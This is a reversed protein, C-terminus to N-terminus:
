LNQLTKLIKEEKTSLPMAMNTNWYESTYNMGNEYISKKQYLDEEEPININFDYYKNVLLDNVVKFRDNIQKGFKVYFDFIEKKYNPIYKDAEKLFSMKLQLDYIKFKFLLMSRLEAYQNHSAATKLDVDLIVRDKADYVIEGEILQQQVTELPKIIIKELTRGDSSVQSRIEFDYKESDKAKTLYNEIIDLNFFDNAKNKFDSLSNVASMDMKGNSEIKDASTLEFARSQNVIVYPKVKDKRKPKIYYDVLGDCFKSYQNNIILFERFYTELKVNQALRQKSNDILESMIEHLPKSTLIVEDLLYEDLELPIVKEGNQFTGVPVVLTKYGLCSITVEKLGPMTEFRFIGDENTYVGQRIELSFVNVYPLPELTAADIIKGQITTQGFSSFCSLLLLWFFHKM